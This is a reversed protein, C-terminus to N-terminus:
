HVPTADRLDTRSRVGLKRLVSAVHQEVTRRSLYLAEAIERNTQGSALLRAVDHERPSLANGYGRRGRRSAPAEGTSRLRHRCRAADHTAGLREYSEVLGAIAAPSPACREAAKAARYPVGLRDYGRRAGSMLDAAEEGSALVGRCALLAVSALPADLGALGRGTEEVLRAVDDLRGAAAYAEAAPWSLEGSWAWVGKGRVIAWGRDAEACAGAVDGHDLLLSTMGGSAAVVVPAISAEPEGLGSRVFAREAGDRDGRAAALWGTVLSLETIVPLLHQYTEVLQRLREDLGAWNGSLWDLRIGTAEATSTVYPNGSLSALQLGSRLMKRAREYKGVWSFADASNCHARALQRSAEPDDCREPLLDVLRESGREAIHLRGGLVNALLAIRVSETRVQTLGEEVRRLWHLHDSLPSSGLYPMALVAMGRLAREPRNRLLDLSLRVQERGRDMADKDRILLLGHGLRVEGRVEDSLRPDSLLRDILDTVGHQALGTLADQCLRVALEDVHKPPLAPDALLSRRLEVATAADGANMAADAAAESHALWDDVLGARRSHEALRVLPKPELRSLTRVARRHLDRRRPGELTEYVARQALIHRYGYRCTSDEVLVGSGLLLTLAAETRAPALMALSALLESSSPQDLVAAAEAVKRAPAPLGDLREVMAERLLAPVEVNDLLRQATASDAKVAGAPDRLAYLTEEIVFPIGATREHLTQAFATSVPQGDLIAEALGAVEGAALPRLEVHASTTGPAPRFARGLLAGGPLDQQRYTLVLSLGAPPSSLLFRLLQRSGEDAWHMDEVVMVVRGLCAILARVARFLRHRDAARDALPELAPPLRDALEPLYPRLAGTIPAPRVPRAGGLCEFIVGYPFPDRLPQCAGVTLWGPTSGLEGVLRTKGVGAEGEVYVVSPSTGAVQVLTALEADRGILIPSSTRVRASEPM